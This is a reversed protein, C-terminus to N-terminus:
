SPEGSSLIRCTSTRVLLGRTREYREIEVHPQFAILKGIEISAFRWRVTAYLSAFMPNAAVVGLYPALSPDPNTVAPLDGPVWPAAAEVSRRYRRWVHRFGIPGAIRTVLTGSVFAAATVEDLFFGILALGQFPRVPHPM